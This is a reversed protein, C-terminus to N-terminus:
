GYEALNKTNLAYYGSPVSYEFNGYGDADANGSSISFSPSGFNMSYSLTNDASVNKQGFPTWFKSTDISTYITDTPSGHSFAGASTRWSGNKGMYLNQNDLDLAFMLIDGVGWLPPSGVVSGTSGQGRLRGDSIINLGNTAPDSQEAIDTFGFTGFKGNSSGASGSQSVIKVEYYWKGSNVGFTGRASSANSSDSTYTLNGESFTRGTSHTMDLPNLTAFNNTCTDTSQDIATLNNATFDNNNGSVDNGLASSDEFDLYFGNTGFTLGSVDKPKWIGSDEDFEGFSTPALQQGDILVCEAMYGDFYDDNQREGINQKTTNNVATDHNQNPYGTSSFSTEQVGNIYLKVRNTDTSQTTDVAFVVHYFANPDRFKRNTHFEGGLFIYIDDADSIFVGENGGGVTAGFIQYYDSQSSALNALKFWGSFTFTKRNSASSPTRELSDSSGRNFRCSNAVNFGTDKISNTGLILPM